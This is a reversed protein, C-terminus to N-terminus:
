SAIATLLHYYNIIKLGKSTAYKNFIEEVDQLCEQWVIERLKQNQGFCKKILVDEPTSLYEIEELLEVKIDTLGSGYLNLETLIDNAEPKPIQSYLGPFLERLAGHSGAHYFGLIIGGAKVIRNGEHYWDRPGKKTYAVDFYDNPFPLNSNADIVMFNINEISKTKNGTKLM